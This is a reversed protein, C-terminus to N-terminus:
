TSRQRGDPRLLQRAEAAKRTARCCTTARSSTASAFTSRLSWSPWLEKFQVGGGLYYGYARADRPRAAGRRRIGDVRIAGVRAAPLRVRARRAAPRRRHRRARHARRHKGAHARAPLGVGFHLGSQTSTMKDPLTAIDAEVHTCNFGFDVFAEAVVNCAPLAALLGAVSDALRTRSSFPEKMSHSTSSASSPASARTRTASCTAGSRSSAASSCSGGRGATARTSRARRRTTAAATTRTTSSATPRKSRAASSAARCNVRAFVSRAGVGDDLRRWDGGWHGLVHGEHRLGDQYIHHAYWANQWESLEFTASFREGLQPFAIGASLATNGLRLNSLTSTDEGAYEFYMALPLPEGLVFQSTFSAVQNGFDESTGTNDNDAPNFFADLLDSFSDEREGGGYQMIRGVGLSWGPFARDVLALRRAAPRRRDHRRRVRHQSSESM